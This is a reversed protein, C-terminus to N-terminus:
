HVLLAHRVQEALARADAQREEISMQLFRHEFSGGVDVEHREKWCDPARNRV